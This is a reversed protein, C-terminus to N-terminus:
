GVEVAKPLPMWHTPKLDGYYGEIDSQWGEIIEGDVIGSELDGERIIERQEETYELLNGIYVEGNECVLVDTNKPATEIPQWAVEGISIEESM